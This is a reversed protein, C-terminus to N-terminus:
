DEQQKNVPDIGKHPVFIGCGMKRHSGLGVRQLRLSDDANLDALLLSRTCVPQEGTALLNPRGCLAKKVRIGLTDLERAMNALFQAEDDGAASVVYRAFITTLKSLPRTSGEGVTLPYGGIDLVRGALKRADDVREVPLRLLLKTRRSLQLLQESGQSPREWGNQSSAVHIQHVAVREDDRMWPLAQQLARSLAYGHDVPIQRCRLTFALDVIDDPVPVVAKPAEEEWFQM